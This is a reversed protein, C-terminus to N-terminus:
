ANLHNPRDRLLRIRSKRLTIEANELGVHAGNPAPLPQDIQFILEKPASLNHSQQALFQQSRRGVLEPENEYQRSPRVVTVVIRAALESNEFGSVTLVSQEKAGNPGCPPLSGADVDMCLHSDDIVLPERDSGRIEILVREEVVRLDIDDGVVRRERSADAFLQPTLM